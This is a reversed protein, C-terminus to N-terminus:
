VQSKLWTTAAERERTWGAGKRELTTIAATITATAADRDSVAAGPRTAQAQALAIRAVAMEGDEPDRVMAFVDLSRQFHTVATAPDNRAMALEGLSRHIRAILPSDASLGKEAIELARYLATQAEDHRGLHTLAQGVGDLSQAIPPSGPPLKAERLELARQYRALCDTHDGKLCLTRGYSELATPLDITDTGDLLSLSREHSALAQVWDGLGAQVEGLRYLMWANNPSDQGSVGRSLGLAQEFTQAAHSFDHVTLELLGLHALFVGFIENQSGFTDRANAIATELIPRAAVYEGRDIQALALNVSIMLTHPHHSGLASDSLRLAETFPAIAHGPDNAARMRLNGINSLTIAKQLDSLGALQTLARSGSLELYASEAAAVDGKYEYMVGVNNFFLWKAGLDADVRDLFARGYGVDGLATAPLSMATARLFIRKSLAELAVLDAGSAIGLNLAASLSAEAETLKGLDMELSGERLEAEALLPTYGIKEAEARLPLVLELAHRYKGADGFAQARTLAERLVQV